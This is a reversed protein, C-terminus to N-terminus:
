VGGGGRDRGGEGNRYGIGGRGGWGRVWEERVGVGNGRGEVGTGEKGWENGKRGGDRGGEM